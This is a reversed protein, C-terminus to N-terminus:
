PLAPDPHRNVASRDSDSDSFKALPVTSIVPQLSHDLLEFTVEGATSFLEGNM